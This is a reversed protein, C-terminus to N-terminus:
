QFLNRGSIIFLSIIPIMINTCDENKIITIKKNMQKIGMLFFLGNIEIIM